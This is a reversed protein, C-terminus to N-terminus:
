SSRKSPKVDKFGLKTAIRHITSAYQDIAIFAKHDECGSKMLNDRIDEIASNAGVIMGRQYATQADAETYIPEPMKDTAIAKLADRLVAMYEAASGYPVGEYLQHLPLTGTSGDDWIVSARDDVFTVMCIQGNVMYVDGPKTTQIDM